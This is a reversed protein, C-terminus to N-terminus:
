LICWAHIRSCSFRCLAGPSECTTYKIMHPFSTGLPLGRSLHLSMSMHCRELTHCTWLTRADAWPARVPTLQPLVLDLFYCLRSLTLRQLFQRFLGFLAEPRHKLNRVGILEILHDRLEETSIFSTDTELHTNGLALLDSDKVEEVTSLHLM